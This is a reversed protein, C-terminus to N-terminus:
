VEPTSETTDRGTGLTDLPRLSQLYMSLKQSSSTLGFKRRINRRHTKITEPSVHLHAAIEESTMGNKVMLAVRLEQASLSSNGQLHSALGSALDNVYKRLANLPEESVRGYTQGAIEEFLPMVLSRIQTFIRYEVEKTAREASREMTAMVRQLEVMERSKDRQEARLTQNEQELQRLRLMNGVRMQIMKATANKDIYDVVGYAFLDEVLRYQDAEIVALYSAQQFMTVTQRLLRPWDGGLSAIDVLAIDIRRLRQLATELGEIRTIFTTGFPQLSIGERMQQAYHGDTTLVLIHPEKTDIMSVREARPVRPEPEIEAM